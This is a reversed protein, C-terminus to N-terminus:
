ARGPIVLDELKELTDLLDRNVRKQCFNLNKISDTM